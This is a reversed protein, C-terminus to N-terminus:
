WKLAKLDTSRSDNLLDSVDFSQNQLELTTVPDTPTHLKLQAITTTVAFAALQCFRNVM